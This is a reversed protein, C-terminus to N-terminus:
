FGFKLGLSTNWVKHLPVSNRNVGWSYIYLDNTGIEYYFTLSRIFSKQNFEKTIRSGFFPGFRTGITWWYYGAPYLDQNKQANLIKTFAHYVNVGLTLPELKYKNKFVDKKWPFYHFKGAITVINDGGISEPLYGLFLDLEGNKKKFISYGLGLSIFGIEGAFQVKAHDIIYWPRSDSISDSQSNASIFGFLLFTVITLKM